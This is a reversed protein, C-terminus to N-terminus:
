RNEEYLSSYFLTEIIEKVTNDTRNEANVDLLPVALPILAAGVDRVFADNFDENKAISTFLKLCLLCATEKEKLDKLIRPLISCMM